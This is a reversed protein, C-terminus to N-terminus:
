ALRRYLERNRSLVRSVAADFDVDPQAILDDLSAALLQEPELGARQAKNRLAEARADDLQVTMTTM